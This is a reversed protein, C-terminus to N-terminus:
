KRFLYKGDFVQPCQVLINKLRKASAAKPYYTKFGRHKRSILAEGGPMIMIDAVTVKANFRKTM